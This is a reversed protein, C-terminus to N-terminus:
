APRAHLPRGAGSMTNRVVVAANVIAKGDPDLVTGEITAMDSTTQAHLAGGPVPLLLALWLAFLLGGFPRVHRALRVIM